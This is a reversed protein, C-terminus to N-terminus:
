SKASPTPELTEILKRTKAEMEKKKKKQVASTHHPSCCHGWTSLVCPLINQCLLFKSGDQCDGEILKQKEEKM